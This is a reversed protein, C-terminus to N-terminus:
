GDTVVKEYYGYVARVGSRAPDHTDRIVGDIVACL